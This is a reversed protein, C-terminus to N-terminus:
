SPIPEHLTALIVKLAASELESVRRAVVSSGRKMWSLLMLAAANLIELTQLVDARQRGQAGPPIRLM